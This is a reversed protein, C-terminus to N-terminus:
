EIREVSEVMETIDILRDDIDDYQFTRDCNRCAWASSTVIIPIQRLQNTFPDISLNWDHKFFCLYMFTGDCNPCHKQNM